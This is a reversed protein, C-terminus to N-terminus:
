AGDEKELLELPLLVDDPDVARKFRALAPYISRPVRLATLGLGRGSGTPAVTHLIGSGVDFAAQRGSRVCTYLDASVDGRGYGRAVDFTGGRLVSPSIRAWAAFPSAEIVDAPASIELWARGGEVWMTARAQPWGADLVKHVGTELLPRPDGTDDSRVTVQPVRPTPALRLILSTIVGFAGRSGWYLRPMNYGAVSKVVGAGLRVVGFGPTVVTLGLVRDRMPGYGHFGGMLGASVIGGLSDDDGDLLGVPFWQRHAGLEENLSAASTGAGVEVTLNEPHYARIGHFPRTSLVRAGAGGAGLRRGAGRALVITRAERAELFAQLVGEAGVDDAM